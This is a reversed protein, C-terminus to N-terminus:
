YSEDKNLLKYLMNCIYLLIPIAITCFISIQLLQFSLTSDMFAFILTSLYLGILVIIGLVAIIKKKNKM